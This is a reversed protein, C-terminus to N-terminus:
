KSSGRYSVSKAIQMVTAPPAEGLVTVLQDAVSRTYVNIAGRRSPGESVDQGSALPEIFVSVAALGDSFVLHAVPGGGGQKMRRVEMVKRFGAPQNDVAWGSAVSGPLQSFPAERRWEPGPSSFSPRVQERTVGGITLQTFAIQEVMQRRENMTRMKLLLGSNLETWLKHGYRLDDKPELVLAQTDYGAIREQEVKIVQYFGTLSGLQEPLLAPFSPQPTRRAIKILKVDPYYCVVEDNTRIVERRPGDLFELKEQEEGREVFHTIRSTETHAGRQYVLTGSYGLDHAARAIRQLEAMADQPSLPEALTSGLALSLGGAAALRHLAHGAGSM